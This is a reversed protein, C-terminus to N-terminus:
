ESWPLACLIERLLQPSKILCSDTPTRFSPISFSRHKKDGAMLTNLFMQLKWFCILKDSVGDELNGTPLGIVETLVNGLRLQIYTHTGYIEQGQMKARVALSLSFICGRCVISHANFRETCM